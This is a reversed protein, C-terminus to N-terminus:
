NLIVKIFYFFFVNKFLKWPLIEFAFWVCVFMLETVGIWRSPLFMHFSFCSATVSEYPKWLDMLMSCMWVELCLPNRKVKNIWQLHGWGGQAVRVRSQARFFPVGGLCTVWWPNTTSPSGKYSDWHMRLQLSNKLCWLRRAEWKWLRWLSSRSSRASSLSCPTSLGRWSQPYLYLLILRWFDGFCFELLESSPSLDEANGHFLELPAFRYQLNIYERKFCYTLTTNGLCGSISLIHTISLM